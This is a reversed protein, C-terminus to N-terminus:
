WALALALRRRDKKRLGRPPGGNRNCCSGGYGADCFICKARLAHYAACYEGYNFVSRLRGMGAVIDAPWQWLWIEKTCVVANLVKIGSPGGLLQGSESCTGVFPVLRCSPRANYLAFATRLRFHAIVEM